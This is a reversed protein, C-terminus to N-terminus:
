NSTSGNPAELEKYQKIAAQLEAQVIPMRVSVLAQSAEMGQLEAQCARITQRLGNKIAEKLRQDQIDVVKAPETMNYGPLSSTPQGQQM